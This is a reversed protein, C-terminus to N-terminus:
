RRRKGKWKQKWPQQEFQKPKHELVPFVVTEEGFKYIEYELQQSLFDRVEIVPRALDQENMGSPVRVKFSLSYVKKVAGKEVFLITDIVEPIMGLEIKGIFRQIADIPKSAHVVGVMGIGALRLDSFVLFDDPKRVEDFITYDPRVLLLIDAASYFSEELPAYQTIETSVQLDRPQELTKVLKGNDAYANAIAAVLTSKGSGPPGAIVMGEAKQKIRELVLPNLAYDELKMKVLPRVVTLEAVESFPSHTYVVRYEGLQLVIAGKKELEVFSKSNRRSYEVAERAFEELDKRSLKEGVDQLQFEGPKGIKARTKCGEKLHISMTHPNFFKIFSLKVENVKIPELYHVQIGEAQAVRAQVKDTTYLVGNLEKAIGRIKSDIEGYRAQKIEFANPRDGIFELTIKKQKALESIRELEELGAFGIERGSNAQYELEAVVSKNVVVKVSEKEKSLIETIRGDILVGTDPVIIRNM